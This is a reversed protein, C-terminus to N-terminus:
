LYEHLCQMIIPNIIQWEGFRCKLEVIGNYREELYFACKQMIIGM